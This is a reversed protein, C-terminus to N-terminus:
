ILIDRLILLDSRNTLVDAVDVVDALSIIGDLSRHYNIGGAFAWGDGGFAPYSTLLTSLTLGRCGWVDTILNM